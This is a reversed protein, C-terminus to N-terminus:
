EDDTGALEAAGAEFAKIAKQLAKQQRGHEIEVREIESIKLEELSTLRARAAVVQAMLDSLVGDAKAIAADAKSSLNALRVTRQDDLKILAEEKKAILDAFSASIAKNQEYPLAKRVAAANEMALADAMTKDAAAEIKDVNAIALKTINTM